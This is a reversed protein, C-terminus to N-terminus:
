GYRNLEWSAQILNDSKMFSSPMNIKRWLIFWGTSLVRSEQVRFFMTINRSNVDVVHTLVRTWTSIVCTNNKDNMRESIFLIATALQSMNSTSTVSVSTLDFCLFPHTLRNTEAFSRRTAM